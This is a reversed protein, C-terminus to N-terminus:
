TPEPTLEVRLADRFVPPLLEVAAELDQPWEFQLRRRTGDRLRLEWYAVAYGAILRPARISTTEVDGPWLVFNHAHQTLLFEPSFADSELSVKDLRRRERERMWRALVGGFPLQTELVYGLGTSQGGIRIFTLGETSVYVRYLRDPRFAFIQRANFADAM